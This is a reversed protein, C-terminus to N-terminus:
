IKKFNKKGFTMNPSTKALFVMKEFNFFFKKFFFIGVDFNRLYAIKKRPTVGFNKVGSKFDVIFLLGM